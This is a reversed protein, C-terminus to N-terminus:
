QLLVPCSAYLIYKSKWLLNQMNRLCTQLLLLIRDDLFNFGKENKAWAGLIETNCFKKIQKLIM